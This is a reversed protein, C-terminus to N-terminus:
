THSFDSLLEAKEGESLFGVQTFLNLYDITRTKNQKEKMKHNVCYSLM